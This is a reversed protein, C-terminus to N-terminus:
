SVQWALGMSRPPLDQVSTSAVLNRIELRSARWRRSSASSRAGRVAMVASGSCGRSGWVRRRLRAAVDAGLM